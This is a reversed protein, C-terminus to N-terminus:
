TLPLCKTRNAHISLAFMFYNAIEKTSVRNIITPRTVDILQLSCSVYTCVYVYMSAHMCGYTCVHVYMYVHVCANYIESVLDGLVRWMCVHCCLLLACNKNGILLKMLHVSM